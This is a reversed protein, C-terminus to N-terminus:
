TALLSYHTPAIRSDGKCNNTPNPPCPHQANATTTPKLSAWGVTPKRGWVQPQPAHDEVQEGDKGSKTPMSRPRDSDDATQPKGVRRNAEEEGLSPPQPAHDEVQEGGKGSKTPMSRPRDSDDDTKPKGVRRNAEEPQSKEIVDQPSSKTPM